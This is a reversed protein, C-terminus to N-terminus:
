KWLHADKRTEKRRMAPSKTHDEYNNPFDFHEIVEYSPPGPDGSSETADAGGEAPAEEVKFNGKTGGKIMKEIADLQKKLAKKYYNVAAFCMILSVVLFVLSAKLINLYIVGAKSLAEGATQNDGNKLSDGSMKLSNAALYSYVFFAVAIVISLVPIAATLFSLLFDKM